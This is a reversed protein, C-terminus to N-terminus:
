VKASLIDNKAYGDIYEIKYKSNIEMIKVILDETTFGHSPNYVNWCRLDDILITHTKIDHSKICELEQLLPAVFKGKATDGSSYHGDLWFTIPSKIDKILDWLIEQSEGKIVKVNPNNSFRKSSIEFYKESLEISYIQKFGADVAFQIGDGIYSGTEIFVPNPYDKFINNKAGM